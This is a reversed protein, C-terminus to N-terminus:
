NKDIIDLAAVIIKEQDSLKQFVICETFNCRFMQGINNKCTVAIGTTTVDIACVIGGNTLSIPQRLLDIWRVYSGYKLGNLDEIFRYEKLKSHFTKLITRELGLAQLIDNIQNRIKATTLGGMSENDPNDLAHNLKDFIDTDKISM